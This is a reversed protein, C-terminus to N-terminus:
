IIPESLEVVYSLESNTLDAIEENTHKRSKILRIILDRKVMKKEEEVRRREQERGDEVGEKYFADEKVDYEIPMNKVAKNTTSSLNRLRSLVVLQKVYKQFTIQSENTEQLKFLIKTIVEDPEIGHMDALISLIFEEPIDSKLFKEYPEQNITILDFGTYVEEPALQTRMIAPKNGLYIVKQIVPINYQKRLIGHYEQMRLLMKDDNSTQFELHLVYQKGERTKILSLYDPEREITSQLKDKMEENQVIDIGLVKKALPILLSAINEKFIKDFDQSM